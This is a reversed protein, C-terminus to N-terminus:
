RWIKEVFLNIVEVLILIIIIWELQTSNRTQLIDKFLELNEKVIGLGEQVTRYRVQLDFTKKLGADLRSLSEDEWTEDPSDIIYLNETIHNKLNLTRGIFMKLATGNMALKGKLELNQTHHNTAELLLNTQSSYHDLAVSQSVNLMVLRIMDANAEPLQIGNFGLKFRNANLDVEFEESLREPLLNKCYPNILKIVTTADIDGYNFLSIVGYKFVYLYQNTGIDYFLEESDAYFITGTFDASFSKIDISESLQYSIVKPM